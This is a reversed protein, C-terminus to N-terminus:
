EEEGSRARRIAIYHKAAMLALTEVQDNSIEPPWSAIVSTLTPQTIIGEDFMYQLADVGWSALWEALIPSIKEIESLLWKAGGREEILQWLETRYNERIYEELTVDGAEAKLQLESFKAQLRPEVAGLVEGALDGKNLNWWAKYDFEGTTLYELGIEQVIPMGIETLLTGINRDCASAPSVWLALPALATLFCTVFKM